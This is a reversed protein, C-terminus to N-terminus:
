IQVESVLKSKRDYFENKLAEPELISLHSGLASQLLGLAALILIHKM